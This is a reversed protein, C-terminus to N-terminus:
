NAWEEPNASATLGLGGIGALHEIRNVAHLRWRERGPHNVLQLHSIGTNSSWVETSRYPGVNFALDVFTDIVFGHCVVMVVEDIHANVIDQLFLGIRARFHLLTEANDIGPTISMFPRESAWWDAYKADANKDIPRHDMHNNGIERIRDDLIIPMDNLSKSIHQATEHARVMTSSYLAQIPLLRNPIWAAAAKAQANGRETLPTDWTDKVEFNPLNTYSEGHRVLYLHM